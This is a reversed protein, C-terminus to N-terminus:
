IEIGSVPTMVNWLHSTNEIESTKTDKVRRPPYQRYLEMKNIYKGISPTPNIVADKLCLRMMLHSEAGLLKSVPLYIFGSSKIKIGFNDRAIKNDRDWM